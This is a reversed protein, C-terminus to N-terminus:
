PRRLEEARLAFDALFFLAFLADTSSVAGAAAVRDAAERFRLYRAAPLGTLLAALAPEQGTPALAGAVRTALDAFAAAARRVAAAWEGREIDTELLALADRARGPPVLDSLARAPSGEPMRHVGSTSVRGDTPSMREIAAAVEAFSSLTFPEADEPANAFLGAAPRPEAPSPRPPSPAADPSPKPQEPAADAPSEEPALGGRRRLDALVQTTISKLADFVGDGRTAVTAFSPRGRPNLRAELVAIPVVEPADQKNYQVVMPVAQLDLGQERLNDELNQLSELNALQRDKQSDAVFVVGDAGTLVLKRTSNYHVQGPVTYLQVRVTYGRLKALKVPLFDFYLTRDMGTALSVLQGRSDPKLARHIFQLSSTKGGLGPGYYVVKLAIERSLLNVSSV